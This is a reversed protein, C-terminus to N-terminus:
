PLDHDDGFVVSEGCTKEIPGLRRQDGGVEGSKRISRASVADDPAQVPLGDVPFKAETVKNKEHFVQICKEFVATKWASPIEQVTGGSALFLEDADKFRGCDSLAKGDLGADESKATGFALGEVFDELGVSQEIGDRLENNRSLPNIIYPVL